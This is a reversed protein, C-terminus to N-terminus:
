AITSSCIRYGGRSPRTTTSSTAKSPGSSRAWPIVIEGKGTEFWSLQFLVHYVVLAKDKVVRSLYRTIYSSELVYRELSIRDPPQEVTGKMVDIIYAVCCEGRLSLDYCTLAPHGM